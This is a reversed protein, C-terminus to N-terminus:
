YVWSESDAKLSRQVKKQPVMRKRTETKESFGSDAAKRTGQVTINRINRSKISM